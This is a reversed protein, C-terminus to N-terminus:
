SSQRSVTEVIEVAGEKKEDGLVSDEKSAAFRDVVTKHFKRASVRQEFLVELEGYTRDKPEPLRFYTWVACLACTGAWFFGTKAGWGWATPNIMQPSLVNTIVGMINYLNRAMVVTKNRLRTSSLESVLSYCVPGVTVNYTLTYLLLLAVIASSAASNGTGMIGALGIGLLFLAMSAQGWFYMTRRGFWRMLFWSSITGFAGIGYGALTMNFAQSDPIGANTYFYTSFGIFTSGCLTQIAWTMCVIETRRRNVPGRFLDRYSTGESAHKEMENTHIMMSINNDISFKTDATNRATLRLLSRKAQDYRGKRVLWYPSEPALFILLILPLPWIWQLAFPIKYSWIGLTEMHELMGVMVGAAILQGIVWCLNNYTTLYARLHLPCVDAAYTTTLTQFVGWPIGILFEGVLLQVLSESFFIIFIFAAVLTMAGMLTKRYGIRESVIGSIFLGAIEGVYIANSLGAQWSATLQYDGDPTQQGFRQMFPPFAYLQNLLAMDFGEMILCTSLGISWAIAKPYTKISKWLGLQHEADTAAAAERTISDMNLSGDVDGSKEADVVAAVPTTSVVNSTM